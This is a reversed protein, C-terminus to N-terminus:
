HMGKGNAATRGEVRRLAAAITKEVVYIGSGLAGRMAFWDEKNDAHEFVFHLLRLMDAAESLDLSCDKDLISM